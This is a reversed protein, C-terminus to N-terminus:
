TPRVSPAQNNARRLKIISAQNNAWGLVKENWKDKVWRRVVSRIWRLIDCGTTCKEHHWHSWVMSSKSIWKSCQKHLFSCVAFWLVNRSITVVITDFFPTWTCLSTKWRKRWWVCLHTFITMVLSSKQITTSTTMASKIRISKTYHTKIIIICVITNKTWFM